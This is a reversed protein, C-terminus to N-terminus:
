LWFVTTHGIIGECILGMNISPHLNMKKPKKPNAKRM